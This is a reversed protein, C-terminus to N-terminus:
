CPAGSPGYRTGLLGQCFGANGEISVRVTRAFRLWGPLRAADLPQGRDDCFAWSSVIGLRERRRGVGAAPGPATRAASALSLAPLAAAPVGAAVLARALRESAALHAKREFAARLSALEADGAEGEFTSAFSSVAAVGENIESSVFHDLLVVEAREVGPIAAVADRADAVMLWAFNPACFYTPLRLEVRVGSLNEIKIQFVFGLDTIPRDLEPDRVSSLAARVEPVVTM